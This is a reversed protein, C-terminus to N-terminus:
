GRGKMMESCRKLTVNEKEEWFSFCKLRGDHEEM